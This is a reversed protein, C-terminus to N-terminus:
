PRPAQLLARAKDRNNLFRGNGPDLEVAREFLLLAQEMDGGLEGYWSGLDNHADGSDPVLAVAAHFLKGAEPTHRQAVMIKGLAGYVIATDYDIRGTAWPWRTLTRLREVALRYAGAASRKNSRATYSFVDTVPIVGQEVIYRGTALHWFTDYGVLTHCAAILLMTTFASLVVIDLRSLSDM